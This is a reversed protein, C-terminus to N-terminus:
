VDVIFPQLYALGKKSTLVIEANGHAEDLADVQKAYRSFFSETYNHAAPKYATEFEYEAHFNM